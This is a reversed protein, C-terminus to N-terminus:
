KLILSTQVNWPTTSPYRQTLHEKYLEKTYPAHIVARFTAIVKGIFVALHQASFLQSILLNTAEQQIKRGKESPLNFTMTLSNIWFGLYEVVQTPNLLSKKTNVM